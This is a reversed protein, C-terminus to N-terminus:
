RMRGRDRRQFVRALMAGVDILDREDDRLEAAHKIRIARLEHEPEIAPDSPALDCVRVYNGYHTAILIAIDNASRTLTVACHLPAKGRWLNWRIAL